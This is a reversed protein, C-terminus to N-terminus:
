EGAKSLGFFRRGNWNTGTIARAVASLSSYTEEGWLLGGSTATVHHQVGGHERVFVTGPKFQKREPSFKPIATEPERIAARGVVDLYKKHENSLDGHANVQLRYALMGMILHRPLHPPCPKGFISRWHRQLGELSASKLEAIQTDFDHPIGSV